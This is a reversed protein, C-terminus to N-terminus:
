TVFLQEYSEAITKWRYKREAISRMKTAVENKLNDDSARLLCILSESDTFFLASNETTFRNFVCDFAFIPKSFHMAEILSPNSGGASHGHIYGICNERLRYLENLDYIPEILELNEFLSYKEKLRSGYSNVSWNGVFKIKYKSKSFASLIIDINNEPEVRGVSFFYNGEESIPQSQECIVHDGGYAICFSELGYENEVYERIAENDSIVTNAFRVASWESCKLFYKALRKWKSRKWEMGDINVIVKSKSFLRYFPLFLCGSVGLILTVDPRSFICYILCVIDYVISQPGNAKLPINVLRANNHTKCRPQDGFVSCFVTYDIHQARARTLNEVLTEFGGYTAPIGVIGVISVKM